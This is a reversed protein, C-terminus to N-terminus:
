KTYHGGPGNGLGPYVQTSRVVKDKNWWKYIISLGISMKFDCVQSWTLNNTVLSNTPLTLWWQLAIGKSLLYSLREWVRSFTDLLLSLSSLILLLYFHTDRTKQSPKGSLLLIQSNIWKLQQISNWQCWGNRMVNPLCVVTNNRWVNHCHAYKYRATSGRHLLKEIVSYLRPECSILNKLM